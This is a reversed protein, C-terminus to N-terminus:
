LMRDNPMRDDDYLHDCENRYRENEERRMFITKDSSRMLLRNITSTKRIHGM